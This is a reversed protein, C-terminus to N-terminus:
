EGRIQGPLFRKLLRELQKFNLPKGLFEDFGEAMMQERMGNMTNATLIIIKGPGGLEYHKDLKRIEKMAEVGDMVPMMQDMFVIQYHTNRCMEVALKGSGAIDTTLGYHEMSSKAMKLNMINDDVVLVRVDELKMDSMGYDESVEDSSTYIKDAAGDDLIKQKIIVTFTSGKGYESEVSVEGGMLEVFGHVIALGLGTGEKGYNVTKDVQSFSKFLKERDEKSIGIGTDKVSLKLTAIDDTKDLVQAQLEVSGSDTYKVANNLLNILIGRIRIKDGYMKKPMDDAVSMKFQLGKKKTQGDVILFVDNFLNKTYYEGCVLEMKGSEIKSIDLIDNIIALLNHSASRIDVIYEHIKPDLEESLALESFGVIANMPTRIEHSMNALFASKASNAADAQKKAEELEKVVRVRESLDGVIVIYGIIDGFNDFLQSVSLNCFCQNKKCMADFEKHTDGTFFVEDADIDFVQNIWLNHWKLDDRGIQLFSVGADNILQLHRETDYVLLPSSVSHYIFESMNEFNIHSHRITHFAYQVCILGWFQTLAGEFVVPLVADLVIGAATCVVLGFFRNSFVIHRRTKVTARMYIVAALIDAGFVALQVFSAFPYKVTLFAFVAAIVIGCGSVINWHRSTKAMHCIIAQAAAMYLVAGIVGARMGEMDWIMGAATGLSWVASGLYMLLRMRDEFYRKRKSFFCRLMMFAALIGNTYIIVSFFVRM